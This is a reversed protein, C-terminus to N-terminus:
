SQHWGVIPSYVTAHTARLHPSTHLFPPGASCAYRRAHRMLLCHFARREEMEPSCNADVFVVSGLRGYEVGLSDLKTHSRILVVPLRFRRAWRLVRGIRGSSSSFCTTDFVVLDLRPFPCRLVAETRDFISSSDLLLIRPRGGSTAIEEVPRILELKRLQVYSELLELTEGYSGPLVMIEASPMVKAAAFLIASIASM